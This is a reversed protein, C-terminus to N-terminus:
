DVILHVLVSLLISLYIMRAAGNRLHLFLLPMVISAPVAAVAFVATSASPLFLMGTAAPLTTIVFLLISRPKVATAYRRAFFIAASCLTCFGTLGATVLAAAADCGFPASGSDSMVATCLQQVPEWFEGGFAWSIYCVALPVFLMGCLLVFVERLSLSFIFIAAVAMFTMLLCPAYLMPLLGLCLGAYLMMELSEDRLYASCPCYIAVATLLSALAAALPDSGIFIGCAAVAYLPLSLVCYNPYFGFRSCIRGAIFGTLLTVPLALVISWVRHAAAFLALGGALPATVAATVTEDPYPAIGFRVYAAAIVVVATFAAAFPTQRAVSNEM